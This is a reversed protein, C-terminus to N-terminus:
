KRPKRQKVKGSYTLWYISVPVPAGGHRSGYRNSLAQPAQQVETFWNIARTASQRMKGPKSLPISVISRIPPQGEENAPDDPWEFKVLWSGIKASPNLRLAEDRIAQVVSRISTGPPVDAGFSRMGQRRAQDELTTVEAVTVRAAKGKRTKAAKKAWYSRWLHRQYLSLDSFRVARGRKAYKGNPLRATRKASL